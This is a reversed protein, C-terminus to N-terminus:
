VSGTPNVFKIFKSFYILRHAAFDNVKGCEAFGM